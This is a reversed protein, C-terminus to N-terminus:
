RQAHDPGPDGMAGIEGKPDGRMANANGLTAEREVFDLVVGAEDFIAKSVEFNYAWKASFDGMDSVVRRIGSRIIQSACHACPMYPSVYLTCDSLDERRARWLANEEAHLIVLSKFTPDCLREESDEIGEPFGNYGRALEEKGRVIIAGVQKSPDKSRSAVRAAEEIFYQDWSQRESMCPHHIVGDIFVM